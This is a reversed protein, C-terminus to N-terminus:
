RADGRLAVSLNVWTLVPQFNGSTNTFALSAGGAVGVTGEVTDTRGVLIPVKLSRGVGPIGNSAIATSATTGGTAPSGYAGGASGFSFVPGQIQLKGAIRLQFFCKALIEAVEQLGAGYTNIVGSNTFYAQEITIGVRRIAADGLASGLQGAQTVNTTLETYTKQHAQPVGSGLVPIAQGKPVGFITTQGTAAHSLVLSSYVQDDRVDSVGSVATNSRFDNSPFLMKM